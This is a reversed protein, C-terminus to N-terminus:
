NDEHKRWKFGKVMTGNQVALRLSKRSMKIEKIVNEFPIIKIVEDTKPDIQEVIVKRMSPEKIPLKEKQLYEEKLENSCSYWFMFYNGKSPTGRKIANVITSVGTGKRNAAAEKKDLFVKEIRTRDSSLMAVYDLNVTYTEPLDQITDDPLSPDLFAWRFKKYASNSEIAKLIGKYAINLRNNEKNVVADRITNYTEILDKGDFSYKQVKSEM